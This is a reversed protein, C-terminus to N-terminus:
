DLELCALLEVLRQPDTLYLYGILTELSSAQQYTEPDVRRSKVFAANRGRKAIGLEDLTLLPELLKLQKAQSEACVQTVVQQHYQQTRKLPLLFYTRIYLEYIADGLYALASSSIQQPPVSLYSKLNKVSTFTQFIITALNIAAEDSGHDSSLQDNASVLSDCSQEGMWDSNSRVALCTDM